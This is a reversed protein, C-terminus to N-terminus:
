MCVIFFDELPYQFHALHLCLHFLILQPYQTLRLVLIPVEHPLFSCVFRESFPITQPSMSSISNPDRSLAVPDCKLPITGLSDTAGVQFAPDTGCLWQAPGLAQM